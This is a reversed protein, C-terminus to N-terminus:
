MRLAAVLASRTLVTMVTFVDDIRCVSRLPIALNRLIAVSVQAIQPADLRGAATSVFDAVSGAFDYLRTMFNHNHRRWSASRAQGALVYM